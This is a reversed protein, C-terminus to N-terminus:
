ETKDGNEASEGARLIEASELKRDAVDWDSEDGFEDEALERPSNILLSFVPRKSITQGGMRSEADADQDRVSGLMDRLRGMDIKVILPRETFLQPMQKM